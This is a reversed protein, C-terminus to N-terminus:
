KKMPWFQKKPPQLTLCNGSIATPNWLQLHQIEVSGAFQPSPLPFLTCKFHWLGQIAWLIWGNKKFLCEKSHQLGKFFFTKKKQCHKGTNMNSKYLLLSESTRVEGNQRYRNKFLPTDGCFGPTHFDLKGTDSTWISAHLNHVTTIFQDLIAMWNLFVLFMVLLFNCPWFNLSKFTLLLNLQCSPHGSQAYSVEGTGARRVGEEGM